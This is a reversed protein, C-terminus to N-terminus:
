TAPAIPYWRNFVSDPDYKKKLDRLRPYNAGFALQSRAAVQALSPHAIHGVPIEVDHGYNTYGLKDSDSLGDQGRVFVDELEAILSKAEGTREPAGGDWQLSALVNPSLQRRFTTASIPVSNVKTLPVYEFIVSAQFPSGKSIETMKAFVAM